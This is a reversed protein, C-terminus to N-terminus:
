WGAEEWSANPRQAKCHAIADQFNNFWHRTLDLDCDVGISDTSYDSIFTLNEVGASRLRQNHEFVEREFREREIAYM